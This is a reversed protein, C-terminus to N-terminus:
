SFHRETWFEAPKGCHFPVDEAKHIYEGEQGWKSLAEIGLENGSDVRYRGLVVAVHSYSGMYDKYVVLDGQVVAAVNQLQSYGDGELVKELDTSEICARRSAFVMGVCNYRHSFSRLAANPFNRKWLGVSASIKEEPWPLKPTLSHVKEGNRLVIDMWYDSGEPPALLIGAVKEEKPQCVLFCCGDSLVALEGGGRDKKRPM